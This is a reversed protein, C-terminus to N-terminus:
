LFIELHTTCLICYNYNVETGASLQQEFVLHIPILM